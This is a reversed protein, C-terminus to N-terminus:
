GEPERRWTTSSGSPRFGARAYLACAAETACSVKMRRAGRRALRDLGETVLALALGRRQYAEHVRVPEVLGVGTRPDAWFLAYGAVEDNPALVALDLRPDYLPCQALRDAVGEGNRARMPHPRQADVLRDVLRYGDPLPAVPARDEAAHWFTRDGNDTVAFGSAALLAALEADDDGVLVEVPELPLRAILELARPWIEGLSFDPGTPRPGVARPVLIPDCSWTGAWDTLLVAAVPGEDDVWFVQELTDSRRPKRWWWQIDAAEWQGAEPDARCVRQLLRTALAMSELGAARVEVM